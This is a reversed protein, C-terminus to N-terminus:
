STTASLYFSMQSNNIYSVLIDESIGGKYMKMVESVGSPLSLLTANAVSPSPSPSAATNTDTAGTARGTLSLFLAAALTTM